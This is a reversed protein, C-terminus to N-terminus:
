SNVFLVEFFYFADTDFLIADNLYLPLRYFVFFIIVLHVDPLRNTKLIYLSIVFSISTYSYFIYNSQFWTEWPKSDGWLLRLTMFLFDEWSNNIVLILYILLIFYTIGKSAKYLRFIIYHIALSMVFMLYFFNSSDIHFQSLPRIGSSQYDYYVCINHFLILVTVFALRLKTFYFCKNMKVLLTCM